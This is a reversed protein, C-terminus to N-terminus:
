AGLAGLEVGKRGASWGVGKQGFAEFCGERKLHSPLFAGKLVPCPGPAVQQLVICKM